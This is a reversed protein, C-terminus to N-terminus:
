VPKLQQMAMMLDTSVGVTTPQSFLVSVSTVTSSTPNNIEYLSTFRTLFTGLKEPDAFDKIDFRDEFLQVQKDIDASAFSDPLGFATRVVNALAKDALVEYWNTLTPAKRQFYLALRVGQNTQGADEELTQRMYNAVVPQQSASYTTANEGLEEFNFAGAFAAFRKDDMTNALSKPDRIGGELVSRMLDRGDEAPDLAYAKMAYAYLRDDALLDDISKVSGIKTLYYDTEAKVTAPDTDDIAAQVAYNNVTEQQAKNYVTTQAGHAAFNFSRVFQAYRKDTLKNAFSEPDSIGEKLAKAMFAKAYDMDGLGAAKMAYKFLRDNQVFEDISTVKGINEEYYKTERDVVPQKEIRDLAKPIDRAILQYSLYTNM